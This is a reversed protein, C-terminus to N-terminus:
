KQPEPLLSGAVSMEREMGSLFKINNVIKNYYKHFFHSIDNKTGRQDTIIVCASLVSSSFMRTGCRLWIERNLSAPSSLVSSPLGFNKKIKVNWATLHRARQPAFFDKDHFKPLPVDDRSIHGSNSPKAPRNGLYVYFKGCRWEDNEPRATKKNEPLNEDRHVNTRTHMTQTHTQTPLPASVIDDRM